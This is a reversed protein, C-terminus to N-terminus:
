LEKGQSLRIQVYEKDGDITPKPVTFFNGQDITFLFIRFQSKCQEM